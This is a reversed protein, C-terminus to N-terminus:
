MASIPKHEFGLFRPRQRRRIAKHRKEAREEMEACTERERVKKRETYTKNSIPGLPNQFKYSAPTSISFSSSLRDALSRPRRPNTLKNM